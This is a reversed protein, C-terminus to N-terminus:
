AAHCGCAEPARGAPLFAPTPPDPTAAALHGLVRRYFRAYAERSRPVEDKLALALAPRLERDSVGAVNTLFQQLTM